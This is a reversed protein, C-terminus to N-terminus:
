IGAEQPKEDLVIPTNMNHSLRMYVVAWASQFFTMLIGQVVYMLMFMAVFAISFIVFMTTSIDGPVDMGMPLMMMPFIMPFAFVSSLIYMVFYLIVMFLTVGLWNARFLEWGHAIADLTRMDDVVIAAQALELVSYGVVLVPICLLFIPIICIFGLGFTFISSFIFIAMFAFWVVMWAGGFIAYLGLVRWFYPLSESFLGRFTLKETGREVKVAGYTTTLQIVVM